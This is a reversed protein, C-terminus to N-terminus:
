LGWTEPTKRWETLIPLDDEKIYGKEVAVAILTEYNSIPHLQINEAAFREEMSAFQYSFNAMTFLVNAGANKLTTVAKLTSGGTSLLDEFIGVNQDPTLVGEIVNELGHTKQSERVYVFPKRLKGAILAGMAIGGNAIGAIVDIHPYEKEIFEVACQLVFERIEVHSLTKRNDCYIPSRWGSAWTYYDPLMKLSVAGIGLLLDAYTRQDQKKM